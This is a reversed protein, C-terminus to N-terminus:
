QIMGLLRPLGLILIPFFTFLFVMVIELILFPLAELAIKELSIKSIDSAVFLVLGMPPTALGLTVIISMVVGFHLPDIGLRLLPTALIPAFILIAPGADMFMGIILLIINIIFFLVYPNSTISSTVIAIYKSLPSLGVIAAFSSAAGVLVLIAASSVCSELGIIFIDKLKLTKLVFLCLVLAYIVAVAAAETPTFIGGYIGGLIIIPALLSPLAKLFAVFREKTTSKPVRYDYGKKECILFNIIMLGLSILVGPVIGAIFMNAISENMVLAYIIMIGSPPIIPGLVTSAATIASAYVRPYGKREMEPILMKGIASTAAVASGTLSSFLTSSMIVVHGLGGKKHGIMSQSFDVIGKIIGGRGMIAGAFIFFPLALLPFSEVSGIFKNFLLSIFRMEGSLLVEFIPAMLLSYFVPVGLLMLAFFVVFFVITM